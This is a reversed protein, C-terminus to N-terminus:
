AQGELSRKVAVAAAITSFMMLVPRRGPKPPLLLAARPEGDGDLADQMLQLRIPQAATM